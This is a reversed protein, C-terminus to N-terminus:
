IHILSLLLVFCTDVNFYCSRVLSISTNQIGSATADIRPLGFTKISDPLTRLRVHKTLCARELGAKIIQFCPESTRLWRIIYKQPRLLYQLMEELVPVKHLIQKVEKSRNQVFIVSSYQTMTITIVIINYHKRLADKINLIKECIDCWFYM